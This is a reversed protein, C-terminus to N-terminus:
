RSLGVAQPTSIARPCSALNLNKAREPQVFFIHSKLSTHKRTDDPDPQCISEITEMKEADMKERKM